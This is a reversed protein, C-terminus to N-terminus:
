MKATPRGGPPKHTVGLVHHTHRERSVVSLNHRPRSVVGDFEPVSESDALIGDLHSPIDRNMTHVRQHTHICLVMMLGKIHMCLIMLLGKVLTYGGGGGGGGGGGIQQLCVASLASTKEM